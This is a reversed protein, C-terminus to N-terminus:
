LFRKPHDKLLDNLDEHDTREGRITRGDLMGIDRLLHDSFDETDINASQSEDNDPKWPNAIRSWWSAPSSTHSISASVPRM